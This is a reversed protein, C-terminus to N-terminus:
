IRCPVEGNLQEGDRFYPNKVEALVKVKIVKLSHVDGVLFAEDSDESARRGVGLEFLHTWTKSKDAYTVALPVPIVSDTVVDVNALFYHRVRFEHVTRHGDKGVSVVRSEVELSKDIVPLRKVPSASTNDDQDPDPFAVDIRTWPEPLRFSVQM